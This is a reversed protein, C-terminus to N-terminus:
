QLICTYCSHRCVLCNLSFILNTDMYSVYLDETGDLVHVFVVFMFIHVNRNVLASVYGYYFASYISMSAASAGHCHAQGNM